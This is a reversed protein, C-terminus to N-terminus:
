RIITTTDNINNIINVTQLMKIAALEYFKRKYPM